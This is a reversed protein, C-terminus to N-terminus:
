KEAAVHELLAQVAATPRPGHVLYVASAFPYRGSAVARADPVVGDIALARVGSGRALAGLSVVGLAQRDGAVRVLVQDESAVAVASAAIRQGPVLVAALRRTSAGDPGVILRLAGRHASVHQWEGSRGTLVDRLQGSTLSRVPCEAAVTLAAVHQVLLRAQVGGARDRETPSAAVIAAPAKGSAVEEIGGRDSGILFVLDLEPHSAEVDQELTDGVLARALASARVVVSQRPAGRGFAPSGSMGSVAGGPPAAFYVPASGAAPRLDATLCAIRQSEDEEEEVAAAPLPTPPLGGSCAALLLVGPALATAIKEM